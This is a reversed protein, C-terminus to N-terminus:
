GTGGDEAGERLREAVGAPWAVTGIDQGAALRAAQARMAREADPDASSWAVLRWRRLCENVPDLDFSDAAEVLAGRFEREFAPVDEPLLAARLRAPTAVDPPPVSPDRGSRVVGGAVAAPRDDPVPTGAPSLEEKSMSM